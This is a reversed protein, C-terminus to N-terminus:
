CVGGVLFVTTGPALTNISTILQGAVTGVGLVGLLLVKM